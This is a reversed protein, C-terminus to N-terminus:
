MWSLIRYKKEKPADRLAPLKKEIKGVMIRLLDCERTKKELDGRTKELAKRLAAEAETHTRFSTEVQKQLKTNDLELYSAKVAIVELEEHLGM